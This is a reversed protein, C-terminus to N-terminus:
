YFHSIWCCIKMKAWRVHVSTDRLGLFIRIGLAQHHNRGTKIILPACHAWQSPIKKVQGWGKLYQPFVFLCFIFGWCGEKPLDEAFWVRALTWSSGLIGAGKGGPPTKQHGTRRWVVQFAECKGFPLFHKHQSLVPVMSGLDELLLLFCLLCHKSPTLHFFFLKPQVLM